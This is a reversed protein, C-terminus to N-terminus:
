LGKCGNGLRVEFLPVPPLRSAQASLQLQVSSPHIAAVRGSPLRNLWRSAYLVALGIAILVSALRPQIRQCAAVWLCDSAARDCIAAVGVSIPLLFWGGAVGRICGRDRHSPTIHDVIIILTTPHSVAQELAVAYV